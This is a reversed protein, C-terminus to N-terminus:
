ATWWYVTYVHAWLSHLMAFVLACVCSDFMLCFSTKLKLKTKKKLLIIVAMTAPQPRMAANTVYTMQRSDHPGAFEVPLSHNGNPKRILKDVNRIIFVGWNM